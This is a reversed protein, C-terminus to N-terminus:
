IRVGMILIDDVQELSGKWEEIMKELKEKQTKLDLSSISLLTEQLKRYKFKKGSEGGFQDAYGDTLAYLMDGKLLDFSLPTFSISQKPSAGVPMKDGGLEIAKGNRIVLPPNYAATYEMCIGNKGYEPLRILVGDMGDQGGEQSVNEILKRRVHNFIENPGTINREAIAENLYSINLLSMFAGPVGHGTSDCVALYFRGNKMTAWYFDGSVIDKPKYLIFHEPLNKLLLKESALLGKQIKQAYHISDLIEKQKQEVVQKQMNIIKNANQNQRFGRYIFFALILTLGFAVMFTNRIVVDKRHAQETLAEKKEQEAKEAAHKQQFDFNMETQVIKKTNQRNILSDRYAIFTKYDKMGNKYDGSVEDLNALEEYANRVYESENIRKAVNLASDIYLKALAFKKLRTYISGITVLKSSTGRKYGAKQDIDLAKFEFDLAEPYNGMEEYINGINGYNRATGTNNHTKIELELARFDYILADGPKGMDDYVNGMDGLDGAEADENGLEKNLKLSKSFYTLSLSDSGQELYVVGLGGYVSALGNKNGTQQYLQLALFDYKLSTPFDGQKWYATSMRNYVWAIGNKDGAKNYLALLKEEYILAKPYNDKHTCINAELTYAHILGKTYDLKLALSEAAAACNLASDFMTAKDLVQAFACITKVKNTDEKATKLVAALSDLKSKQASAGFGYTLWVASLIIHQVGTRM